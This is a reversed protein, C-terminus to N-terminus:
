CATSCLKTYDRSSYVTTYEVSKYLGRRFDHIVECHKGGWTMYTGRRGFEIVNHGWSATTPKSRSFFLADQVSSCWILRTLPMLRFNREEDRHRWLPCSPTEFWWGWSQKNLEKNLRLDFFVDFSQTVTRQAPLEGTVPSNGTCLALLAYSTDM